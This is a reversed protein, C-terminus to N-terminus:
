LVRPTNWDKDFSVESLMFYVDEFKMCEKMNVRSINWHIDTSINGFMYYVDMFKM